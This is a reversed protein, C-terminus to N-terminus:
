TGPRLYEAAMWGEEGDLTRVKLWRRGDLQLSEGLPTVVTGDPYARIITGTGPQARLFLGQGSGTIVIPRPTPTASPRPQSSPPPSPRPTTTPAIADDVLSIGSATVWGAAGDTLRVLYWVQGDSGQVLAEVSLDAGRELAGIPTGVPRDFLVPPSAAAFAAYPTTIVPVVAVGATTAPLDATRCGGLVLCCLSLLTLVGRISTMAPRDLEQPVM